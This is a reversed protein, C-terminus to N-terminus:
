DISVRFVGEKDKKYRRTKTQGDMTYIVIEDLNNVIIHINPRTNHLYVKEIAIKISPSNETNNDVLVLFVDRDMDFTPHGNIYAPEGDGKIKIFAKEKTDLIGKLYPYIDEPKLDEYQEQQEFITETEGM